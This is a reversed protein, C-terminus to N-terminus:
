FVCYPSYNIKCLILNQLGLVRKRFEVKTVDRKSQCAGEVWLYFVFNLIGLHYVYWSHTRDLVLM